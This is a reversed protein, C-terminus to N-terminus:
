EASAKPKRGRRKPKVVEEVAQQAKKLLSPQVVKAAKGGPREVALGDRLYFTAM